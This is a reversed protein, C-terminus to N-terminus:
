RVAGDEAFELQCGLQLDRDILHPLLKLPHLVLVFPQGLLIELVLFL